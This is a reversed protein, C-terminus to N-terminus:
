NFDGWTEVEHAQSMAERLISPPTGTGYKEAIRSSDKTRHGMILDAYRDEVRAARFKDKLTHRASYAVLNTDSINMKTRIIANLKNSVNDMGREGGYRPFLASNPDSPTKYAKLDKLVKGLLAPSRALSGKKLGRLRNPRIKVHAIDGSLTLDQLLLGSAEAMRCGTWVMLLGILKAQEDLNDLHTIYAKLEDPKFSRRDEGELAERQSDRMAKFPSDKGSIELERIALTFMANLLGTYKGITSASMKPNSSQYVELFDRAHTRGISEIPTKLGVSVKGDGLSTALAMTLRNITQEYKKQKLPTRRAKNANIKLYIDQADSLTPKLNANQRGSLLDVAISQIDPKGRLRGLSAHSTMAEHVTTPDVPWREEELEIFEGQLEWYEDLRTLFQERTEDYRRTPHQDPHIDHKALLNGAANTLEHPPLQKNNALGGLGQLRKEVQQNIRAAAVLAVSLNTTGLSVKEERKGYAAVLAAPIARRYSYTGKAPSKKLYRSASM